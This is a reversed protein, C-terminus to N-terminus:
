RVLGSSRGLLWRRANPPVVSTVAAATRYRLDPVVRARGSWAGDLSATAVDEARLWVFSPLRDQGDWDAAEQFGTRVFGPLSSTAVVGSGRLEEHLADTFSCIFAKTAGYTASHPVPYLAAISSVNLVHGQRRELMGPLVASCLRQVAVVNLQVQQEERDAPLEAFDGHTGVGANNVLLDVPDESAALRLEVSRRSVPAALDAPLVEVEVPHAASLAGALAELRDGRRAVLVLDTGEAALREAFARGIGSSAGTVLARGWRLPSRRAGNGSGAGM